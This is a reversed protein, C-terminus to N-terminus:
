FLSPCPTGQPQALRHKNAESLALIEERIRAKASLPLLGWLGRGKGCLNETWGMRKGFGFVSGWLADVVDVTGLGKMGMSALWDFGKRRELVTKKWVRRADCWARPLSFAKTRLPIKKAEKLFNGLRGDNKIPHLAVNELGQKAFLLWSTNEGIHKKEPTRGKQAKGRDFFVGETAGLAKRLHWVM